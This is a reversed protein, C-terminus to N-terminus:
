KPNIKIMKRPGSPAKNSSVRPASRSYDVDTKSSGFSSSSSAKPLPLSISGSLVVGLVALPLGLLALPAGLFVNDTIAEFGGLTVITLGTFLFTSPPTSIVSKVVPLLVPAPEIILPALSVILDKNKVLLPLLGLDDVLPLLKEVQSLTLGRDALADLLGSDVTLSLLKLERIREVIDYKGILLAKPDYSEVFSKYAVEGLITRDTNVVPDEAIKLGFNENLPKVRPLLRTNIRPSTFANTSLSSLLLAVAVTVTISIM